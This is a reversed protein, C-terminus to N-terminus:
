DVICYDFLGKMHDKIYKAVSYRRTGRKIEKYEGTEIIEEVIADLRALISKEKKDLGITEKRLEFSEKLLFIHDRQIWGDAGLKIWKEDKSEKNLPVWLNANCEKTEYMRKTNNWIKVKNTCKENHSLQKMMDLENFNVYESKVKKKLVKGCEPCVYTSKVRNWIAAPRKEYSIKADEKSIIVYTNEVKKKNRLRRELEVIDSISKIIFGQSNPVFREIERKWKDKLHGPCLVIANLGRNDKNNHHAYTIGAGQLTKGSGMEGIVFTVDETNLCNVAAQVTSKQAEYMEIGTGFINDDYNNVYETYEQQGPIFKPIFSQQIKGALTEGFVNLYDDLGNISDMLLSPENSNNVSIDGNKLGDSIITEVEKEKVNICACRFPLEEHSTKYELLYINRRDVLRQVIYEKWEELMPTSFAKYIKNFIKNNRDEISTFYVYAKLTVNEDQETVTDKLYGVAHVYDGDTQRKTEIDYGKREMRLTGFGKMYCYPRTEEDIKKLSGKLLTVHSVVSFFAVKNSYQDVFITDCNLHSLNCISLQELAM